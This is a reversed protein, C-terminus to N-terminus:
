SWKISSGLRGVHAISLLVAGITVWTKMGDDLFLHWSCGLVLAGVAPMFFMWFFTHAELKRQAARENMQVLKKEEETLETQEIKDPPKM